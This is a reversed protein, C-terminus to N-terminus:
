PPRDRPRSGGPRAAWGSTIPVNGASSSPLRAAPGSARKRLLVRGPGDGCVADTTITVDHAATAHAATITRAADDLATLARDAAARQAAWPAAGPRDTGDPSPLM